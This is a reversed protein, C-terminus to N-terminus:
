HEYRAFYEAGPLGLGTNFNEALCTHHQQPHERHTVSKIEWKFTNKWLHATPRPPLSASIISVVLPQLSLVPRFVMRGERPTQLAIESGETESLLRQQTFDPLNEKGEKWVLM